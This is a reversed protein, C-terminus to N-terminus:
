ESLSDAQDKKEFIRKITMASVMFVMTFMAWIFLELPWLRDGLGDNLVDIVLTLLWIFLILLPFAASARWAGTWHRLASFPLVASGVSVALAILAILLNWIGASSPESVATASFAQSSVLCTLITSLRIYFTRLEPKNKPRLM